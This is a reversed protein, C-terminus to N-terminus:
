KVATSSSKYKITSYAMGFDKDAINLKMEVLAVRILALHHIIHETNYVIERFYTTVVVDEDANRNDQETVLRLQKDPLSVSNLLITLSNIAFEKDSELLLNRERNLYDVQGKEYGIRACQLLEIIHRSHAGISVGGLHEINKTYQDPSLTELLSCLSRLQESLQFFIM